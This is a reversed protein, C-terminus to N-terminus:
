TQRAVIYLVNEIVRAEKSIALHLLKFTLFAKM